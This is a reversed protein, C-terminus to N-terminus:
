RGEEPRELDEQDLLVGEVPAVGGVERGEVDEARTEAAEAEVEAEGQRHEREDRAPEDEQREQKPLDPRRGDEGVVLIELARERELRHLAGEALPGRHRPDAELEQSSLEDERERDGEEELRSQGERRAAGRDADPLRPEERDDGPAEERRHDEVEVGEAEELRSEVELLR